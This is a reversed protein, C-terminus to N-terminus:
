HRIDDIPALWFRTLDDLEARDAERLARAFFPDRGTQLFEVIRVMHRLSYWRDGILVERDDCSPDDDGRVALPPLLPIM